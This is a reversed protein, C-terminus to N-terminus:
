QAPGEEAVVVGLFAASKVLMQEAMPCLARHQTIGATLGKMGYLDEEDTHQCSNSARAPRGRGPEERFRISLAEIVSNARGPM